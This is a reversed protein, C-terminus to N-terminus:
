QEITITGNFKKFFSKKWRVSFLGRSLEQGVFNHENIAEQQNASIQVIISYETKSIVLQPKNWDIENETKEKVTVKM